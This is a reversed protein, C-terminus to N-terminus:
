SSGPGSPCATSASRRRPRPRPTALMAWSRSAPRRRCRSGTCATSSPPRPRRVVDREPSEFATRAAFDRVYRPAMSFTNPMLESLYSASKGHLIGTIAAALFRDVRDDLRLASRDVAAPRADASPVGPRGGRSASTAALPGRGSGAAPVRAGPQPARSWANASSPGRRGDALWRAPTAALRTRAEAPGGPRGQGRDPSPRVPQPRQRRRHPGGRRGPAAGHRPRLVPRPRCRGPPLLPRHVRPRPGGSLERPVLVDPPASSGVAEAASGSPSSRSRPCSWPCSSHSSRLPRHPEAPWPPPTGRERGPPRTGSRDRQPPPAYCTATQRRPDHTDTPITKSPRVTYPPRRARPSRFGTRGPTASATEAGESADPRASARGRRLGTRRRLSM